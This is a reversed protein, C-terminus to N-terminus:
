LFESTEFLAIRGLLGRRLNMITLEMEKLGRVVPIFEINSSDTKHQVFHHQWLNRESYM